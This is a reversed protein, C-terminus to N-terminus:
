GSQGAGKTLSPSRKELIYNQRKKKKKLFDFSIDQDQVQDVHKSKHWYSIQLVM